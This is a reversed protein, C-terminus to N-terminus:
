VQIYVYKRGQVREISPKRLFFGNGIEDRNAISVYLPPSFVYLVLYFQCQSQGGVNNKGHKIWVQLFYNKMKIEAYWSKTWVPLLPCNFFRFLKKLKEVRSCKFDISRRSCRSSVRAFLRIDIPFESRRVLIIVGSLRYLHMQCFLTPLFDEYGRFNERSSVYRSDPRTEWNNDFQPPTEHLLMYLLPLFRFPICYSRECLTSFLCSMWGQKERQGERRRM